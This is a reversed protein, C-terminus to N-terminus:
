QQPHIPFQESFYAGYKIVDTLFRPTVFTILIVNTYLEEGQSIQINYRPLIWELTRYLRREEGTIKWEEQLSYWLTTKGPFLIV